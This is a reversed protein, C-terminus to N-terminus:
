LDHSPFGVRGSLCVKSSAGGVKLGGIAGFPSEIKFESELGKKYIVFRVRAGHNSVPVDFLTSQSSAM